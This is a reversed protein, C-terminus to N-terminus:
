CGCVEELLSDLCIDVSGNLFGRLRIMGCGYAFCLCLVCSDGLGCDLMWVGIVLM